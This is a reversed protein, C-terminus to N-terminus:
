QTHTYEGNDFPLLLSVNAEAKSRGQELGRTGTHANRWLFQKELASMLNLM